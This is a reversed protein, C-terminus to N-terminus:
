CGQQRYADEAKARAKRQKDQGAASNPSQSDLQAMRAQLKSCAAAHRTERQASQQPARSARQAAARRPTDAPATATATLRMAQEWQRQAQQVQQPWPLSAPVTEMREITAQHEACHERAWFQGGGQGQCLYVTAQGPAARTSGHLTSLGDGVVHGGACPTQGYSNGCRYIPSGQGQAAFPIACLLLTLWALWTHPLATRM